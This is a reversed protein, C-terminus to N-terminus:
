GGLQKGTARSIVPEIIGVYLGAIAALMQATFSLFTIGERNEIIGETQSVLYKSLKPLLTFFGVSLTSLLSFGRQGSFSTWPQDDLM